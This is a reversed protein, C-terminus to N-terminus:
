KGMLYLQKIESPSLARNYVRAEDIAGKSYHMFGTSNSGVGILLNSAQVNESAANSGEFVGNLYVDRSTSSIFVGCIHQWTGAAGWLNTTGVATSLVGDADDLAGAFVKAEAAATNSMGISWAEYNAASSRITLTADFFAGNDFIDSTASIKYWSCLTVPTGLASVPGTVYDDIGDFNFAQGVKGMTPSTSTSMNTM